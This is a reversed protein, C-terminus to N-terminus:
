RMREKKIRQIYVGREVKNVRERAERYKCYAVICLILYGIYFIITSTTQWYNLTEKEHWMWYTATILYIQATLIISSFVFCLGVTTQIPDSVTELATTVNIAKGILKKRVAMQAKEHETMQAKEHRVHEVNNRKYEERYRERFNELKDRLYKECVRSYAVIGGVFIVLWVVNYYHQHM